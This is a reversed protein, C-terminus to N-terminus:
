LRLPCWHPLFGRMMDSPGKKGSQGLLFVGLGAAVIGMDLLVRIQFPTPGRWLGYVHLLGLLLVLWVIASISGFKPFRIGKRVLHVVFPIAIILSLLLWPFPLTAAAFPTALAM